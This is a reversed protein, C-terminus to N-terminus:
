APQTTYLLQPLLGRRSNYLALLLVKWSVFRATMMTMYKSIYSIKKLEADLFHNTSKPSIRLLHTFLHDCRGAFTDV